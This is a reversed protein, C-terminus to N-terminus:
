FPDRQGVKWQGKFWYKPQGNVVVAFSISSLCSRIWSRWRDGFGKWNLIRDLFGGEILGIM